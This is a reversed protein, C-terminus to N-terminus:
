EKVFSLTTQSGNEPNMLKVFYYGKQLFHVDVQNQNGSLTGSYVMQGLASYIEVKDFSTSSVITLNDSAPNPYLIAVEQGPENIGISGEKLSTVMSIGNTIFNSGDAFSPDFTAMVEFQTGTEPRFVRFRITENENLGEKATTYVDDSWVMLAANGDSITVMGACHGESTFAGIVDGKNLMSLASATFGITHSASTNVVDNWSTLNPKKDAPQIYNTKSACAPFTIITEAAVKVYYAYGPLLNELTYIGGDPWYVNDTGM